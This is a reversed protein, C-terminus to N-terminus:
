KQQVVHWAEHPLQKEQGPAVYIDTGQAYALAHVQAPKASNYHVRVDDLSIVSLSEVNAKLDDPLGTKNEKLQLPNNSNSQIQKDVSLQLPNQNYTVTRLPNHKMQFPMEKEEAKLHLPNLTARSTTSLIVTGPVEHQLPAAAKM